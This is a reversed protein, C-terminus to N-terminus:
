RPRDILPALKLRHANCENEGALAALSDAHALSQGVGEGARALNKLFDIGRQALPEAIRDPVTRGLSESQRLVCLGRQHRDRNSSQMDKFLLRTEIDRAIDREDGAM